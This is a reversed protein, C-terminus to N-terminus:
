DIKNKAYSWSFCLRIDSLMRLLIIFLIFFAKLMYLWDIKAM